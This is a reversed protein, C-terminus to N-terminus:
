IRARARRRRAAPRHASHAPRAPPLDRRGRGARGIGAITGCFANNSTHRGAAVLGDYVATFAPLFAAVQELDGYAGNFTFAL